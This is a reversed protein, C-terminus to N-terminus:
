KFIRKIIRFRAISMKTYAVIGLVTASAKVLDETKGTILKNGEKDKISIITAVAVACGSLILGETFQRKISKKM